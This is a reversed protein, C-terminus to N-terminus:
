GAVISNRLIIRSEPGMNFLLDVISLNPTFGHRAAFVQYYPAPCFTPDFDYPIKPRITERFDTGSAAVSPDIYRQRNVDIHPQLNLADLVWDRLATNFDVLLMGGRAEEEATLSRFYIAYLEDAYYEFYPSSQYASVIAQWHQHRWGGHESVLVSHMPTKSIGIPKTGDPLLLPASVPVTLAIPGDDGAIICRNRYTQKVYHDAQEEIVAGERGNSRM